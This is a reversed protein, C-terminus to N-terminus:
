RKGGQSNIEETERLGSGRRGVEMNEREEESESGSTNHINAVGRFRNWLRSAEATKPQRNLGVTGPKVQQIQLGLRRRLSPSLHIDSTAVDGDHCPQTKGSTTEKVQGHRPDVKYGVDAPHNEIKDSDQDCSAAFAHNGSKFLQLPMDSTTDTAPIDDQIVYTRARTM